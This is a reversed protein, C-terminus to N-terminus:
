SGTMNRLAKKILEELTPPGDQDALAQRLAKEATSRQYGLTTLALLAEARIEEHKNQQIPVVPVLKAIKERLEVIMREATKRGVGPISTLAAINGSTLYTHLQDPAIGSLIGQAIKPGIGNVTLLLKFLLREYETAFGYLVLADERVHLYTFLHVRSGVDGVKEFTSLPIHVAYGVGDVEILVETPSKTTLVGHLSAIL